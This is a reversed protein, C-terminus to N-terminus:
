LKRCLTGLCFYIFEFIHIEVLHGKRGFTWEILHGKRGLTWEVLHCEVLHVWNRTIIKYNLYERIMESKDVSNFGIRKIASYEIGERRYYNYNEHDKKIKVKFVSEFSGFGLEKIEEFHKSYFGNKVFSDEFEILRGFTNMNDIMDDSILIDEFTEYKTSQPSSVEKGEFLGWVYYIGDISQSM